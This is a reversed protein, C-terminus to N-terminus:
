DHSRHKGGTTAKAASETTPRPIEITPEDLDRHLHACFADVSGLGSVEIGTSGLVRKMM